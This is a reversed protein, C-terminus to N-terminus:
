DRVTENKLTKTDQSIYKYFIETVVQESSFSPNPNTPNTALAGRVKPETHTHLLPLPDLCCYSIIM